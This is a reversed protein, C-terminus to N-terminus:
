AEPRVAPRVRSGDPTTISLVDCSPGQEVSADVVGDVTAIYRATTEAGDPWADIVWVAGSPQILVPTDVGDCNWDGLLLRDGARGFSWRAGHGEVTNAASTAPWVREARVATTSSATVSTAITTTTADRTTQARSGHPSLALVLAVVVTVVVAAAVPWRPRPRPRPSRPASAIARRPGHAAALAAAIASMTPRAAEDDTSCRDAIARIADAAPSKDHEDLLSRLLAGLAFVDGAPTGDGAHGFGCLRVAGGADILVHEAVLAGHSMGRLHLDAVNAALAAGVRSLEGPAVPAVPSRGAFAFVIEIADGDDSAALLEVAGADAAARLAAVTARLRAADEPPSTRVIELRGNSGLRM